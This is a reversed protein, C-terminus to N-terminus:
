QWIDPRLTSRPIGTVKEIEIARKPSVSKFGSIVQNLYAVSSHLKKATDARDVASFAKYIARHNRVRATKIKGMTLINGYHNHLHLM